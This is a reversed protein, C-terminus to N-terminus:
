NSVQEGPFTVVPIHHIQEPIINIKVGGLKDIIEPLSNFNVDKVEELNVGFNENLTKM